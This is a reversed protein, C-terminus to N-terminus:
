CTTSPSNWEHARAATTLWVRRLGRDAKAFHSRRKLDEFSDNPHCREYDTRILSELYRRDSDNGSIARKRCPVTESNM